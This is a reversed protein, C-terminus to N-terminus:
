KVKNIIEDFSSIQLAMELKSRYLNSEVYDIQAKIDNDNNNDNDCKLENKLQIFYQESEAIVTLIANLKNQFQDKNM